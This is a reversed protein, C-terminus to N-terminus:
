DYNENMRLDEFPWITIKYAQMESRSMWEYQKVSKKQGPNRENLFDLKKKMIVM